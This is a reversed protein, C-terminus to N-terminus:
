ILGRFLLAKHGLLTCLFLVPFPQPQVAASAESREGKGEPTEALTKETKQKHQSIILPQHPVPSSYYM